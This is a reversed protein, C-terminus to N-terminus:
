TGDEQPIHGILAASNAIASIYEGIDEPEARNEKFEVWETETPPRQHERVLTRLFDDSRNPM